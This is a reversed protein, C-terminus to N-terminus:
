SSDLHVLWASGTIGPLTEFTMKDVVTGHYYKLGREITGGWLQQWNEDVVMYHVGADRLRRPTDEPTVRVVRRRGFPLWLGVEQAGRTTGYGIVPENRLLASHKFGERQTEVSLRCSYSDWAKALFKWHPHKEKLPVLLTEAPFLPRSRSVFLMGATVFMVLLVLMQWWRRRVLLAYERKALFLPFLFVYYAAIQRAPAMSSVEAMFVLLLLWPVIRLLWPQWEFKLASANPMFARYRRACWVSVMTLVVVGLGIGVNPESAGQSLFAFSEFSAFHSGFPTQTFQQMANNWATALPLYPPQLNQIPIVIANGVIGWFPSSPTLRSTSWASLWHNGNQQIGIWTGAHAFNLLATPVASILLGTAAVIATGVPRTLLLRAGPLIAVLWLGALPINTQKAGTALAAALLSIWLDGMCKMEIGRLAFAVAALAYIVGFSDTATSSAQMAYCWGSALLWMWWWATRASVRLRRFVCFILGPLLLYSVWNVLYIARDTHTFLMLPASLWEFGCGAINMRDDLTHIWHWRGEALWHWVRPIRYESSDNNQNVYLGGAAVSMLALVQYLFPAPRKFRKLFKRGTRLLSGRTIFKEKRWRWVAMILALALVVEYGARNLQHIGSLIWGSGVLLASILIWARVVTLM